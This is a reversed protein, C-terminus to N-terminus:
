DQYNSKILDAPLHDTKAWGILQFSKSDHIEPEYITTISCHSTHEALFVNWNVEPFLAKIGYILLGSHTVVLLDKGPYESTIKKLGFKLRYILQNYNEGHPFAVQHNGRIWEHLVQDFIARANGSMPKGELDGIQFEKFEPIVKFPLNLRDAIIRATQVARPIPSTYISHIPRSAFWDATLKVQQIGIDTLPYDGTQNDFIRLVNATSEGHRIFYLNSM